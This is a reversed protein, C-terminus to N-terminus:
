RLLNLAAAGSSVGTDSRTKGGPRGACSGAHEYYDSASVTRDCGSGGSCARCGARSTAACSGDFGRRPVGEGRGRGSDKREHRDHLLGRDSRFRHGCRRRRYGDHWARRFQRHPPGASRRRARETCARRHTGVQGVDGQAPSRHNRRNCSKRCSHRGHQRADRQERGVFPIAPRRPHDQRKFGPGRGSWMWGWFSTLDLMVFIALMPTLWGLHVARRRKLARAFGTLVEVLSLGLVIAFLSFAFDFANM